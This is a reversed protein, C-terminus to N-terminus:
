SEQSPHLQQQQKKKRRKKEAAVFMTKPMKKGSLESDNKPTCRASLLVTFVGFPSFVKAKTVM